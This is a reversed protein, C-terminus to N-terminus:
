VLGTCREFKTYTVSPKNHGINHCHTSCVELRCGVPITIFRVRPHPTPGDPPPLPAATANDTMTPLGSVTSVQINDPALHHGVALTIQVV